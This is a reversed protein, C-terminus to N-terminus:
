YKPIIEIIKLNQINILKMMYEETEQIINDEINDIKIEVDVPKDPEVPLCNIHRYNAKKM